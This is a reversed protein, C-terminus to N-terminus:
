CVFTGEGRWVEQCTWSKVLKVLADAAKTGQEIDQTPEIAKADYVEVAEM